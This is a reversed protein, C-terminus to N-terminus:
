RCKCISIFIFTVRLMKSESTACENAICYAAYLLSWATYKVICASSHSTVLSLPQDLLGAFKKLEDMGLLHTGGSKTYCESLILATEFVSTLEQAATAQVREDVDFIAVDLSTLASFNFFAFLQAVSVFVVM